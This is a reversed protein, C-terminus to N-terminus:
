VGLRARMAAIDSADDDTYVVGLKTPKPSTKPKRPKMPKPTQTRVFTNGGYARTARLSPDPKAVVPEDDGEIPVMRIEIRYGLTRAIRQLTSFRPDKVGREVSQVTMLGFEGQEAIDRQTLKQKYRQQALFIGVDKAQQIEVEDRGNM